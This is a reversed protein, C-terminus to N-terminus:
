NRWGKNIRPAPTFDDMPQPRDFKPKNWSKGASNGNFSDNGGRYGGKDSGNFGSGM